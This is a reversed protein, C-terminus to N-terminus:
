QSKELIELLINNNIPRPNYILHSTTNKANEIIEPFLIPDINYSKFSANINLDYFMKEILEVTKNSAQDLNMECINVGLLSAIDRFKEKCFERNIKLVNILVVSVAESHSLGTVSSIPQALRHAAGVSAILSLGSLYSAILMNMRAELNDPNKYSEVLNKSILEISKLATAKAFPIEFLSVYAEIAHSLADIGTLATLKPPLSKTLNPDLIVLNPVLYPHIISKKIKKEKNAIVAVKTVEAGTGSTTPIAIIDIGRKKIEKKGIQYETVSGPNTLLFSVAKATDIVSGGGVALIIGINNEKAYKVALDVDQASPESEIEDFIFVKNSISDLINMIYFHFPLYKGNNKCTLYLINKKNDVIENKLKKVSNLGYITRKPMCYDVIELVKGKKNMNM